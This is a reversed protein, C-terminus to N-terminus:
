EIIKKDKRKSFFVIYIIELIAMTNAILLVIFWVKEKRQASRWLALAKWPIVWLALLILIWSNNVIFQEMYM